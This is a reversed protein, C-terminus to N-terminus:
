LSIAWTSDSVSSVTRQRTNLARTLKDEVRVVIMLDVGAVRSEREAHRGIM